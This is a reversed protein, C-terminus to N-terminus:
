EEHLRRRADSHMELEESVFLAEVAIVSTRTRDDKKRQLKVFSTEELCAKQNMSSRVDDVMVIRGPIQVRLGLGKERTQFHWDARLRPRPWFTVESKKSVCTRLDESRLSGYWKETQLLSVLTFFEWLQKLFSRTRLQGYGFDMLGRHLCLSNAKLPSIFSLLPVCCHAWSTFQFKQHRATFSRPTSCPLSIASNIWSIESSAKGSCCLYTEAKDNNKRKVFKYDSVWTLAPPLIRYDAAAKREEVNAVGELVETPFENECIQTVDWESRLAFMVRLHICLIDNFVSTCGATMTFVRLAQKVFALIGGSATAHQMMRFRYREVGLINAHVSMTNQRNVHVRASTLVVSVFM